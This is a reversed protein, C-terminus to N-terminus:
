LNHSVISPALMDLTQMSQGKKMKRNKSKHLM